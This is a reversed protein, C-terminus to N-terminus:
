HKLNLSSGDVINIGLRSYTNGDSKAAVSSMITVNTCDMTDFSNVAMSPKAYSKKM